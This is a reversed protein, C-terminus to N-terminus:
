VAYMGQRLKNIRQGTRPYNLEVFYSWFQRAPGQLGCAMQLIIDNIKSM